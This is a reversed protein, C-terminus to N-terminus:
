TARGTQPGNGRLYQVEVTHGWSIDDVSVRLAAALRQRQSPSPTYQGAVVAKVVQRELQSSAILEEITMGLEGMYTAISKMNQAVETFGLFYQVSHKGFETM